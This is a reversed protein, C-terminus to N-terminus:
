YESSGFCYRTEDSMSSDYPISLYNTDNDLLYVDVCLSTDKCNARVEIRRETDFSGGMFTGVTGKGEWTGILTSFVPTQTPITTSTSTPTVTPVFTSTSLPRPTNTAEPVPTDTIISKITMTSTAKDSLHETTNSKNSQNNCATTLLTIILFFIAFFEEKTTM